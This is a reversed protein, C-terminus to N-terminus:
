EGKGRGDLENRRDFPEVVACEERAIAFEVGGWRLVKSEARL